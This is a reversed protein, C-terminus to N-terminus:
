KNLIKNLKKVFEVPSKINEFEEKLEKDTYDERLIMLDKETVNDILMKPLKVDIDKRSKRKPKDEQEKPKIEELKNDETKNAILLNKDFHPNIQMNDVRTIKNPSVNGKFYDYEDKIRVNRLYEKIQENKSVQNVQPDFLIMEGDENKYLNVIHGSSHKRWHVEFIYRENSKIEQNLKNYIQKYNSGSIQKAEPFTGTEPNIYAKRPDRALTMFDESRNNGKAKVDFGRCRLEFAMVCTQCNIRYNISKMLNPNSNGNDVFNFDVNEKPKIGLINSIPKSLDEISNLNTIKEDYFSDLDIDKMYEENYNNILNPSLKIFDDKSYFETPLTPEKLKGVALANMMDNYNEASSKDYFHMGGYKCTEPSQAECEKIVGEPTRHYRIM